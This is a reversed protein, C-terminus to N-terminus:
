LEADATWQFRLMKLNVDLTEAAGSNRSNFSYETTGSPLPDASGVGLDTGPGFKTARGVTGLDSYTTIVSSTIRKMTRFEVRPYRFDGSLNSDWHAYRWAGVGDAAGPTVSLRYSKEYYRQCLSLEGGITKGALKFPLSEKGEVLQVQSLKFNNSASDCSNVQNSTSLFNGSQWTNPTTHFTSGATLIFMIDMGVGDTYDWTGAINHDLTITKKEWTDAVDITYEAIYTRDQNGNKFAVCHIGTKTDKVYFSLTMTKGALPQIDHGEVKYTIVTFDGAAISADATTCDVNLALTSFVDPVDSDAAIDHVMTGSKEYKFRDATYIGNAASVFLNGRQYFDFNGNIIYNRSNDERSDIEPTKLTAM